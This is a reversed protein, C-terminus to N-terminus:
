KFRKHEPVKAGFSPSINQKFLYIDKPEDLLTLYSQAKLFDDDYGMALLLTPAIQFHSVHNKNTSSAKLLQPQLNTNTTYVLLPVFYEAMETDATSCHGPHNPSFVEGHDSTYVVLTDKLNIDSLLADFFDQKSYIVSTEHQLKKTATKENLAGPPYETYPFHAGRLVAYTFTKPNNLWQKNIYKAITLDTQYSSDIIRAEDFLGMEHKQMDNQISINQGQGNLYYVKFENKKAYAWISPNARVDKGNLIQEKNAAWRLISNSSASCNAGSIARGFNIPQTHGLIAVKNKNFSEWSISEDVLLLIHNVGVKKKAVQVNAGQWIYDPQLLILGSYILFNTTIPPPYRHMAPDQLAIFSALISFVALALGKKPHKGTELSIKRALYISALLFLTILLGRLVPRYYMVFFQQSSDIESLIWKVADYDVLTGLIRSYIVNILVNFAYIATFVYAWKPKLYISSCIFAIFSMICLIVNLYKELNPLSRIYQYDFLYGLQKINFFYFVMVLMVYPIYRKFHYSSLIKKM